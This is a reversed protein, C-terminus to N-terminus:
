RHRRRSPPIVLGSGINWRELIAAPSLGDLYYAFHSQWGNMPQYAGDVTGARMKGSAGINGSGTNAGSAELKADVWLEAVGARRQWVIHHPRHDTITSTGNYASGALYGRAPSTSTNLVYMIPATGSANGSADRGMLEIFNGGINNLLVVWCEMAFPGTGPDDAANYTNETIYQGSSRYPTRTAVGPAANTAGAVAFTGTSTGTRGNGSLDAVTGGNDMVWLLRPKDRLMREVLADVAV